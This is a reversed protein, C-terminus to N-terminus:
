FLTNLIKQLKEGTPMGKLRDPPLFNHNPIRDKPSLGKNYENFQHKRWLGADRQKMYYDDGHLNLDPDKYIPSLHCYCKVHIPPSVDTPNVILGHMGLCTLCTNGTQASIFRYKETLGSQRMTALRGENQARKMSTSAVMDAYNKTTTKYPQKITVSDWWYEGAANVRLIKRMKGVNDIVVGDAGFMARIEPILLKSVQSPPIGGRIGQQELITIMKSTTSQSKIVAVMELSIGQKLLQAGAEETFGYKSIGTVLVNNAVLTNYKTILQKSIGKNFLGISGITDRTIKNLHTTSVKSYDFTLPIPVKAASVIKIKLENRRAKVTAKISKAELIFGVRFSRPLLKICQHSQRETALALASQLLEVVDKRTNQKPIRKVLTLKAREYEHNLGTYLANNAM